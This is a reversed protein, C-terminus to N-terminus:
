LDELIVHTPPPILPIGTLFAGRNPVKRCFPPPKRIRCKKMLGGCAFFILNKNNYSPSITYFVRKRPTQAGCAGFIKAQPALFTLKQDLKISKRRGSFATYSLGGREHERRLLPPAKKVPIGRIPGDRTTMSTRETHLFGGSAPNETLFGCCCSLTSIKM